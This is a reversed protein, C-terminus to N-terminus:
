GLFGELLEQLYMCHPFVFIHTLSFSLSFLRAPLVWRNRYLGVVGGALTILPDTIVRNGWFEGGQFWYTIVFTEWKKLGSIQRYLHLM